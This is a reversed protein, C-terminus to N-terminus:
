VKGFIRVVKRIKPWPVLVRGQKAVNKGDGSESTPSTLQAALGERVRDRDSPPRFEVANRLM